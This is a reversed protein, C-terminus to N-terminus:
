RDSYVLCRIRSCFLESNPYLTVTRSLVVSRSTQSFVCCCSWKEDDDIVTMMMMQM